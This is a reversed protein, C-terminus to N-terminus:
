YAQHPSKEDVTTFSANLQYSTTDKYSGEITLKQHLDEDVQYYYVEDKNLEHLTCTNRFGDITQIEDLNPQVTCKNDKCTPLPINTYETEDNTLGNGEESVAKMEYGRFDDPNTPVCTNNGVLIYQWWYDNRMEGDYSTNGSTDSSGGLVYNTFDNYDHNGSKESIIGSFNNPYYIKFVIKGEKQQPKPKENPITDPIKTIKDSEELLNCGAFFRLIDAEPDKENGMGEYSNKTVSNIIAPHDILLSFSLTGTRDTNTYTYVKEGRGIFTNENWAVNVSEQFDLDYPPFWMIRGGNPGRQEKSINDDFPLVDKWALNEISFMCKRVDYGGDGSKPTIKVFGNEQLVTNDALSQYGFIANKGNDSRYARYKKNMGQIDRNKYPVENGGVVHTFPRILKKVQNYQHHYTWTRCYPNSYGNTTPKKELADLALLNRGHSNGFASRATDTFEPYKYEDKSTHFRAILTDIQNQRFLTNTKNM